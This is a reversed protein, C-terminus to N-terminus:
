RRELYDLIIDKFECYMEFIREHSVKTDGTVPFYCNIVNDPNKPAYTGGLTEIRQIIGVLNSEFYKQWTQVNGVRM